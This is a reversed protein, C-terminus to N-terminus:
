IYFNNSNGSDWSAVWNVCSLVVQRFMGVVLTGLRGQKFSKYDSLWLIYIFFWTVEHIGAAIVVVAKAIAGM